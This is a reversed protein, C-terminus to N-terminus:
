LMLSRSNSRTIANVSIRPTAQITEMPYLYSLLSRQHPLVPGAMHLRPLSGDTHTFAIGCPNTLYDILLKSNKPSVSNKQLFQVSKSNSTSVPSWSDSSSLLLKSHLKCHSRVQAFKDCDPVHCRRGGGHSICCGKSQALKQCGDFACRRGGGHAICLGKSQALKQCGSERCRSGGGHAKCLGQTQAFKTCEFIGCRARNAKRRTNLTPM